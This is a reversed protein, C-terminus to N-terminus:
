AWGLFFAPRPPATLRESRRGLVSSTGSTDSAASVICPSPVAPVPAAVGFGTDGLASGSGASGAGVCGAARIAAVVGKWEAVAAAPALGALVRFGSEERSVASFAISARLVTRPNAARPGLKLRRRLRGCLRLAGATQTKSGQRPHEAPVEADNVDPTTFPLPALMFLLLVAGGRGAAAAAATFAVFVGSSVGTAVSTPTSAGEVKVGAAGTAGRKADDAALGLPLRILEDLGLAALFSPPTARLVPDPALSAAANPSKPKLSSSSLLFSESLLLGEFLVEPSLSHPHSPMDGFFGSAVGAGTSSSGHASGSFGTPEDINEYSHAESCACGLAWDCGADVFLGLGDRLRADSKSLSGGGRSAGGCAAAPLPASGYPVSARSLNPDDTVPKPESLKM